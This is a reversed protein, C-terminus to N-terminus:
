RLVAHFLLGSVLLLVFFVWHTLQTSQGTLDFVFSYFPTLYGRGALQNFYATSFRVSHAILFIDDGQVTINGDTSAFLFLWFVVLTVLSVLLGRRGSTLIEIWRVGSQKLASFSM